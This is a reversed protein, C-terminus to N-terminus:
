PLLDDVATAILALDEPRALRHEGDKILTLHVDDGALAEALRVSTQWPVDADAMGHFLRVPITLPIPNQLLQLGRGDEVLARTILYPVDDYASALEIHGGELLRQRSAPDLRRWLLDETFDPASAIGVLGVAQAPRARAVHLAIWAGMSSGVLVLQPWGWHDVVALADDIWASLTAAAFDGSSAGHGRYDFRGFATGRRRCHAELAVAKTSAMSSRFGGLWLVGPSTGPTHRLALEVGGPGPIFQLPSEHNDM